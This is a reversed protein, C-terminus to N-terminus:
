ANYVVRMAQPRRRRLLEAHRSEIRVPRGVVAQLEEQMQIRDVLSWEAMPDFRVFLSLVGPTAQDERGASLDMIRWKRCFQDIANLPLEPAYM